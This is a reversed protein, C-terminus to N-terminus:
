DDVVEAALQSGLVIDTLRTRGGWTVANGPPPDGKSALYDLGSLKATYHWLTRPLLHLVTLELPAYVSNRIAIKRDSQVSGVPESAGVSM